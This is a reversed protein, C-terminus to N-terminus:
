HRPREGVTGLGGLRDEKHSMRYVAEKTFEIQLKKLPPPPTGLGAGELVSGLLQIVQM